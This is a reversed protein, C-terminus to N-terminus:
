SLLSDLEARRRGKAVPAPPPVEEEGEAEDEEAMAAEIVKRLNRVGNNGLGFVMEAFATKSETDTGYFAKLRALEGEADPYEGEVKDHQGTRTVNGAEFILELIPVEWEPVARNHVTNTDRKITVRAYRM